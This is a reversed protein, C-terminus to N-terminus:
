VLFTFTGILGIAATVITLALCFYVIFSLPIVSPSMFVATSVVVLLVAAVLIDATSRANLRAVAFALGFFLCSAGLM